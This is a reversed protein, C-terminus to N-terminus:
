RKSSKKGELRLGFELRVEGKEVDDNSYAGADFGILGFGHSRYFEIAGVNCSQTELVVMRAGVEKAHRKARRMLASGIGRRRHGEDVLLEWVRLRNNWTDHGVEVIGVEKKGIFAAFVTPRNVHPAALASTCRKEIGKPLRRIALRVSWGDARRVVALRYHRDAVYSYHLKRRGTEKLTLQRIRM